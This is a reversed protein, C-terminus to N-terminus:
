LGLESSIEQMADVALTTFDEVSVGLRECLRIEDRNVNRAFDKKKMRKLVSSPAVAALKKDPMVLATAVVLGTITEACTLAIDFTSTRQIGTNPENHAQIAHLADAPLAEGALLETSAMGHRTMDTATTEFDLDHLLGTIGWLDEDHGLRRALHRM